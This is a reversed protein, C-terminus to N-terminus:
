GTNTAMAEYKITKVVMKFFKVDGYKSSDSEWDKIAKDRVGPWTREWLDPALSTQERMVAAVLALPQGLQKAKALLEENGRLHGAVLHNKSKSVMRPMREGRLGAAWGNVYDFCGRALEDSVDGVKSSQSWAFALLLVSGAGALGVAAEMGLAPVVRQAIYKALKAMDPEIAVKYAVKVRVGYGMFTGVSREVANALEFALAHLKGEKYELAIFKGEPRSLDFGVLKSSNGFKFTLGCNVALGRSGLEMEAGASPELGVLHIEKEAAAKVKDRSASVDLTAGKNGAGDGVPELEGGIKMTGSVKFIGITASSVPIEKYDLAIKGAKVPLAAPSHATSAQANSILASKGLGLVQLLQGM